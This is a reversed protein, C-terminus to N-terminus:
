LIGQGKVSCLLGGSTGTRLWIFRNGMKVSKLICKLITRGDISLHGLHDRAKPNESRRYANKMAVMCEVHEVCNMRKWKMVRIYPSSYM